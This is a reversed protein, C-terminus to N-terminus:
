TIYQMSILAQPIKKQLYLEVKKMYFYLAQIEQYNLKNDKCFGKSKEIFKDIEKKVSFESNINIDMVLEGRLYCKNRNKNDDIM